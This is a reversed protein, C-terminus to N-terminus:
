INTPKFDKTTERVVPNYLSLNALNDAGVTIKKSLKTYNSSEIVAPITHLVKAPLHTQRAYYQCGEYTCVIEIADAVATPCYFGQRFANEVLTRPMVHHGCVRSHTDKLLRRGQEIPICRQLIRTHSQKYLEGEVIMFSKARHALWRAEMKNTPLVERLLYDLYPTGWDTLPDPEAV